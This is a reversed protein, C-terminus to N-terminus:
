APLSNEAIEYSITKCFEQAEKRLYALEDKILNTLENTDYLFVDKGLQKSVSMYAKTKPKNFRNYGKVKCFKAEFNSILDFDLQSAKSTAVGERSLNIKLTGKQFQFGLNFRKKRYEFHHVNIQILATGRTEGVHCFQENLDLVIKMLYAKQFITELQNVRIYESVSNEHKTKVFKTKSGDIFVSPFSKHDNIFADFANVLNQVTYIYEEVFILERANAESWKIDKLCGLLKEFSVAHWAKHAPTENILSIFGCIKQVGLAYQEPIQDYYKQTQYSHESSKLKNELVIVYNDTRILLDVNKIETGITINETVKIEGNLGFLNNLFRAKENNPFINNELSLIWYLTQTHIRESDSILLADFFTSKIM